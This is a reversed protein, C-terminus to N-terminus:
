LNNYKFTFGKHSKQRHNPCIVAYISTRSLNYKEVLTRAHSCDILKGDKYMEIVKADRRIKPAKRNSAQENPTAWRLNLIHDDTRVRNIHDCTTNKPEVDGYAKLVLKGVRVTRTKENHRRPFAVRYGDRDIMVKIESTRGTSLVRGCTTIYYHDKVDEYGQVDCIRKM